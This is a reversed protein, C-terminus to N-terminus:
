QVYIWEIIRKLNGCENKGYRKLVSLSLMPIWHQKSLIKWKFRVLFFAVVFTCECLSVCVYACVYLLRTFSKKERMSLHYWVLFSSQAWSCSTIVVVVVVALIEISPAFVAFICWFIMTVFCFLLSLSSFFAYFEFCLRLSAIPTESM